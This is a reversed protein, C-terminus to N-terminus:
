RRGTSLGTSEEPMSSVCRGSCSVTLNKGEAGVTIVEGGSFEATCSVKAIGGLIAMNVQRVAVTHVGPSVSIGMTSGLGATDVLDKGDVSVGFYNFVGGVRAGRAPFVITVQCMGSSPGYGYRTVYDSRPAADLRTGCEPCFSVNGMGKLSAGCRYCFNSEAM